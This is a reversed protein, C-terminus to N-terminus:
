GAFVGLVPNWETIEQGVVLANLQFPDKSLLADVADASEAEFILLAQDPSVGVYPGSARLAGAEVLTGLYARHEPRKAAVAEADDSYTYHVAYFPM